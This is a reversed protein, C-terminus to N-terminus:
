RRGGEKLRLDAQWPTQRGLDMDIGNNSNNRNNNNNNNHMDATQKGAERTPQM